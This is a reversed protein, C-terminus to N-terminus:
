EELFGFDRDTAQQGTELTVIWAGVNILSTPDDYFTSDLTAGLTGSLPSGLPRGSVGDWAWLEGAPTVYYWRDDDGAAQLWKEGLGGWNEWLNGDTFFSLQQDLAFALQATPLVVPQTRRWGDTPVVNVAFDGQGIGVFEYWGAETPPDIVGNGNLDIDRTEDTASVQGLPGLLEVTWGNLYEENADRDGDANRDHFLRGRISAERLNGFDRGAIQQGDELQDTYGGTPAVVDVLLGPDAHFRADLTAVSNGDLLTGLPQGSVRDWEILAGAPTIYYWANGNNTSQLWKEGRGGWNEFLGARISFAFQVDLEFATQASPALPSTQRWGEQVRERVTYVGPAVEFWYWGRETLPDITENGDLDLDPTQQPDVVQGQEDLLEVTWGNLYEDEADVNGDADHDHFARGHVSTTRTEIALMAGFTLVYLEGTEDQGFGIINPPNGGGVELDSLEFVGETEDLVLMRGTLDGFIYRGELSPYRTGRYVFGGIVSDATADNAYEAIPDILDGPNADSTNFPHAGERIRWGYNGGRTVLDVEEWRSQGVDGAFLRDATKPTPGNDFSFRYPNRLGYAYIEPRAGAQGSFPNAAPIGYQGNPSDSGDVDIRLIKGLLSALNQANNQPDGGSGGDGTAIYLLGDDPGFHIDGGNHNLFPQRFRLLERESTGEALDPDPSTRFESVVSDHNGGLVSSASYYVYFKGEGQADATSFQPHFALGLLGREGGTVARNLGGNGLNLFPTPGPVGARVIRIQGAQQAVFIRGSGDGAHTAVLPAALGSTV